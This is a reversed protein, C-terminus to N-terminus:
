LAAFRKCNRNHRRRAKECEAEAAYYADLSRKRIFQRAENETHFFVYL